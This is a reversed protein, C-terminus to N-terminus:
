SVVERLPVSVSVRTGRGPSSEVDVTGGVLRARESMSARGLSRVRQQAPVFGVGDDRVTMQVGGNGRTVAVNVGSARSHRAVNRLAEQAIRFLCVAVESPLEPPAEFETLRAPISERRSFQECEVKLAESLGLDDLVSPHLQYSLAHVDDSLRALDKRMTRTSEKEGSDPLSKEVRAADIALRALRQSLDDHLERALRRREDEHATLLRRAFERADEEAALRRSRQLYLAGILATQLVVLGLAFAVPGRYETWLSPPRFLVASGAPLRSEPIGWRKLERFDYAPSGAAVPITEVSEAKEGNLIRLAAGAARRSMEPISVLPGGVIGRDLQTDFLGFIPANAVAHLSTLATHREHPIGAADVYLEGFFIASHPPLTAVKKKMEELSLDNLWTFRVRDAFPAFDRGTEELWLKSLHSGGLVVAIDTTGPLVQLINEIAAGNDLAFAAVSMDTAPALSTVVRREVGSALLPVSPFLHERERICFRAAPGGVSVLLDM